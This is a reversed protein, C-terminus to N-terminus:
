SSLRNVVEFPTVSVSLLGLAFEIVVALSAGAVSASLVSEGSSSLEALAEVSSPESLGLSFLVPFDGSATVESSV